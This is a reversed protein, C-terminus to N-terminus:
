DNRREVAGTEEKRQATEMTTEVAKFSLFVRRQSRETCKTAMTIAMYLTLLSCTHAQSHAHTNAATSDTLSLTWLQKKKVFVFLFVVDVIRERQSKMKRIKWRKEEENEEAPVNGDTKSGM